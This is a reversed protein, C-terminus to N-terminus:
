NVMSWQMVGWRGSTVWNADQENLTTLQEPTLGALVNSKCVRLFLTPTPLYSVVDAFPTTFPWHADGLARRYNADGKSIVLDTQALERRFEDPMQWLPHSSTMFPHTHSQLRGDAQAMKLREGWLRVSEVEVKSLAELTHALDQPTADSVFTPFLKLHLHVQGAKGCALLYDALMLDALLEPGANDILMDLRIHHLSYLRDAVATSEDVLLHALKAKDDTHDPKETADTGWLSLDVQNGWLAALLLRRLAGEQWGANQSLVLTRALTPVATLGMRLAEEKQARYPDLGTHFYDVAEIIRRFFYTEAFFWPIELWNQSRYRDIAPQWLPFDPAHTDTLPRILAYPMEDMLSEVANVAADPLDNERLVGRAIERLRRKITDEAFSGRDAGRLPPPVPLKPRTQM